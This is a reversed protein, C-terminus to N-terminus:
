VQLASKIAADDICPEVPQIIFYGKGNFCAQLYNDTLQITSLPMWLNSCIFEDGIYGDNGSPLLKL